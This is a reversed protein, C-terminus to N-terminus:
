RVEEARAAALRLASPPTKQTRKRFAHVIVVRKGSATVYIARAIGDRGKMRMEWLKGRLHKLHPGGVNELGFSEILGVIRDLKARMDVPLADLEALVADNLVEVRWVM